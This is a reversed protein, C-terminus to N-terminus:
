PLKLPRLKAGRRLLTAAAGARTLNTEKATARVADWEDPFLRLTITERPAAGFRVRRIPRPKPTQDDAM